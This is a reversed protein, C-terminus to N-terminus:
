PTNGQARSYAFPCRWSQQSVRQLLHRRRWLSLPRVSECKDAAIRVGSDKVDFQNILPGPRDCQVDSALYRALQERVFGSAMAPLTNWWGFSAASNVGAGNGNRRKWLRFCVHEANCRGIKFPHKLASGSRTALMAVLRFRGNDEFVLRSAQRNLTLRFARLVAIFRGRERHECRSQPISLSTAVMRRSSFISALLYAASHAAVFPARNAHLVSLDVIVNRATAPPQFWVHVPLPLGNSDM